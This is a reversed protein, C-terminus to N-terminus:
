RVDRMVSVVLPRVNMKFSLNEFEKDSLQQQAFSQGDFVHSLHEAQLVVMSTYFVARGSQMQQSAGLYAM